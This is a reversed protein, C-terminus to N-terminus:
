GATGGALGHRLCLLRELRVMEGRDREHDYGVLHLLGHVALAGLEAGLPRGAAAAQRAATEASIVLDGLYAAEEPAVGPPPPSAPFALVDTARDLRRYRRNLERIDRDSVIRLTAGRPDEPAVEAAVRALLAALPRRDVVFRDQRNEVTFEPSPPEPPRDDRGRGAEPRGATAEPEAM